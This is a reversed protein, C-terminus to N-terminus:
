RPLLNTKPQGVLMSGPANQVVPGANAVAIAISWQCEPRVNPHLLIPNLIVQAPLVGQGSPDVYNNTEIAKILKKGSDKVFQLVAENIEQMSAM